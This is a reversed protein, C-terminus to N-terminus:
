SSHTIFMKSKNINSISANSVITLSNWTLYNIKLLILKSKSLNLLSPFLTIKEKSFHIGKICSINQTKPETNYLQQIWKKIVTNYRQIQNKMQIIYHYWDWQLAFYNYNQFCSISFLAMSSLCTWCLTHEGM